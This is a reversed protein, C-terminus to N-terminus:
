PMLRTVLQVLCKGCLCLWCRVCFVTKMNRNTNVNVPVTARNQDEFFIPWRQRWNVIRVLCKSANFENAKRVGLHFYAEDSIAWKAFSFFFHISVRSWRKFWGLYKRLIRRHPKRNTIISFLRSICTLFKTRQCKAQSHYAM